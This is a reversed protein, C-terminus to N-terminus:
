RFLYGIGFHILDAKHGHAKLLFEAMLNGSVKYRMGISELLKSNSNYIFVGFQVPILVRGFDYEYSGYV